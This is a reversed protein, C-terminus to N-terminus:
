EYEGNYQNVRVDASGDYVYPGITLSHAFKETNNIFQLNQVTSVGDGIKIAPFVKVVGLEETVRYDSYVIIEGKAPVYDRLAAWESRTKVTRLSDVKDKILEWLVSLGEQNLFKDAM